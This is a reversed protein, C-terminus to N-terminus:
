HNFPILCRANRRVQARRAVSETQDRLLRDRGVDQLHPPPRFCWPLCTKRLSWVVAASAPSAVVNSVAPRRALEAPLSQQLSGSFGSKAAGASAGGRPCCLSAEEASSISSGEAQVSRRRSDQMTVLSFLKEQSEYMTGTRKHNNGRRGPSRTEGAGAATHLQVATCGQGPLPGRVGASQEEGWGAPGGVGHDERPPSSGM